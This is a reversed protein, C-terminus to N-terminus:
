AAHRGKVSQMITRPEAGMNGYKVVGASIEGSLELSARMKLTPRGALPLPSSAVGLIPAYYSLGRGDMESAAAYCLPARSSHVCSERAARM